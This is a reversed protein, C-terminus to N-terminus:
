HSTGKLKKMDEEKQARLEDFSFASDDRKAPRLLIAMALILFLTMVAFAVVWVPEAEEEKTEKAWVPVATFFFVCIATIAFRCHNFFRTLM